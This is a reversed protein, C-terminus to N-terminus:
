PLQQEILDGRTVYRGGYPLIAPALACLALLAGLALAHWAKVPDPKRLDDM